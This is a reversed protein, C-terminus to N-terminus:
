ILIISNARNFFQIQLVFERISGYTYISRYILWLLCFFLTRRLTNSSSTIILGASFKYFISHFLLWPWCNNCVKFATATAAVAADTCLIAM